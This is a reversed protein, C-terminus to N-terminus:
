EGLSRKFGIVRVSRFTGSCRMLALVFESLGLRGNNSPRGAGTGQNISISLQIAAAVFRM